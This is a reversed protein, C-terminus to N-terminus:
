PAGKTEIGTRLSIRSIVRKADEFVALIQASRIAWHSRDMAGTACNQWDIPREGINEGRPTPCRTRRVELGDPLDYLHIFPYSPSSTRRVLRDFRLNAAAGGDCANRRTWVDSGDLSVM